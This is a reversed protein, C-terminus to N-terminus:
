FKQHEAEHNGTDSHILPAIDHHRGHMPIPEHASRPIPGPGGEKGRVIQAYMTEQVREHFKGEVWFLLYQTRCHDPGMGESIRSRGRLSHQCVDHMCGVKSFHTCVWRKLKHQYRINRM